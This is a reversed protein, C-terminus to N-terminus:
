AATHQKAFDDIDEGDLYLTDPSFDQENPWQVTNLALRVCKFYRIDKLQQFIGFELYPKVDFRKARGDSFKLDLTHNDNARVAVVKNM